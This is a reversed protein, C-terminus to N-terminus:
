LYLCAFPLSILLNNVRLLLIVLLENTYAFFVSFVPSILTIVVLSFGCLTILTALPVIFINALVTIPSFIRFYCLILGCTGLWASLSVLCGEAIFRLPKFSILELRFFSKIKPYLYVIAAVSVFSLQFSISFLERPNILLITLAALPLSNNIDPERRILFGILFFIGMITARVVPASAGTLFCYIVLCLIVLLYRPTRPLRLVKFLLMIISAVVAVNFGSVVLIHVTGSKIMADYVVQPIGKREGLVMADLIGAALASLKGYIIGEIKAKLYLALRKVIFGRNKNTRLAAAPAKIYMIGSINDGYFKPPRHINGLLVMEEGYSLGSIEKAKVLIDGSCDYKKDNFQLQRVSFIFSIGNDKYSPENNIFGWVTYVTENKYYIYRSIHAKSLLCSNDLWLAGLTFLLCSIFISFRISNKISTLCLIFFLASLIYFITFTAWIFHTFVIGLCFCGVLWSLKHGTM